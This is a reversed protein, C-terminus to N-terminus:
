ESVKPLKEKTTEEVADRCIKPLGPDIVELAKCAVFSQQLLDSKVETIAEGLQKGLVRAAIREETKGM